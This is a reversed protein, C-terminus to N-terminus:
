RRQLADALHDSASDISKQLSADRPIVVQVAPKARTATLVLPEKVVVTAPKTASVPEVEVPAPPAAVAAASWFLGAISVVTARM